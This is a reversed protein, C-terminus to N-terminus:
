GGYPHIQWCQYWHKTNDIKTVLMNAGDVKEKLINQVESDQLLCHRLQAIIIGAHKSSLTGEKALFARLMDLEVLFCAAMADGSPGAIRFSVDIYIFMIGVQEKRDIFLKKFIEDEDAEYDQVIELIELLNIKKHMESLGFVLAERPRENTFSAEFQDFLIDALPQQSKVGRINEDTESDHVEDM